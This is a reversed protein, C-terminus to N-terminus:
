LKSVLPLSWDACLVEWSEELSETDILMREAAIGITVTM